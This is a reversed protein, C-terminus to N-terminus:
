KSEPALSIFMFKLRAIKTIYMVETHAVNINMNALCSILKFVFWNPCAVRGKEEAAALVKM